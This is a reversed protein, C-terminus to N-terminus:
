VFFHPAILVFGQHFMATSVVGINLCLSPAAYIFPNFTKKPTVYGGLHLLRTPYVYESSHPALGFPNAIWPHEFLSLRCPSHCFSLHLM